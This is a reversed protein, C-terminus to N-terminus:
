YKGREIEDRLGQVREEVFMGVLLYIWWIGLAASLFLDLSGRRQILGHTTSADLAFVACTCIAMGVYYKANM